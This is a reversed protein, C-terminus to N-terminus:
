HIIGVAHMSFYAIWVIGFALPLTIALSIVLERVTKWRVSTIRQGAAVGIMAGNMTQTSSVPLGLVAFASVIGGAALQQIMSEMPRLNTTANNVSKAIREGGLAFGLVFAGFAFVTALTANYASVSLGSVIAIAMFLATVKSLDNAGYAFAQVTAAGYQVYSMRSITASPLPGLFRRSIFYLLVALGGGYLISLMSAAMVNVFVHPNFGPAQAHSAVSWGLMAGILALTMSTPIRKKWSVLTVCAAGGVIVLFSIPHGACIAVMWTCLNRAVHNGLLLPGFPIALMIAIAVKANITRGSTFGGYLNGGDNCGAVAGYIGAVAVLCVLFAITWDHSFIWSM